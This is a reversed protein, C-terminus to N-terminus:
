RPAPPPPDVEENVGNARDLIVGPDSVSAATQALRRFPATIQVNFDFPVGRVSVNGIGPIAAIPGLDIPEGSNEGSFRISSVVEGALDGNLIIELEDYHFDRLADFAVRAMGVAGEGASGVYAITGGGPLARVVGDRVLAARRSLLLPFRGELRGTAALDPLNLSKILDAADVNNLVLEFQTEEAGLTITTPTLSLVGMAYAFEAREIAVRQDGLLQFQVRGDRAAVGPNVLGITVSQGPPTTLAFLDDFVIDGRVDEIIPITAAALSVGDLHVRGSAAVAQRDWIVEALASVDGRVNEVMGRLRETLDYPQLSADFSLTDAVIRAGGQGEAIDHQATFQALPRRSAEQLVAGEANVAGDRFHASVDALRIPSFLLREAESAPRNAVVLAEGAAVRVVFAGDEQDASWTGAIASVNGPLSPDSLAGREFGGAIRWDSGLLADATLAGLTLSVRRTESLDFAISPTNAEINLRMDQRAGTFRGRIASARLTVPEGARLRGAVRPTAITFGGALNGNRDASILAGGLACLPVSGDSFALGAIELSAFRIPLCTAKPSIAWGRGWNLALDLDIALDRVSGAGLPGSLLAPGDLELRGGGTAPLVLSFEVDEAAILAGSNRWDSISVAGEAEFPADPAWNISDFLLTAKPAGGGSIDLAVAGHLSLGPWQLLAADLDERLPEITVRVGNSARAVIPAVIRVQMRGEAANWQIPASVSFAAGAAAFTQRASAFGPGVPANAFNPLATRLRETAAPLLRAQALEIQANGSASNEDLAFVGAARPQRAAVGFGSLTGANLAWGGRGRAGDGEARAELLANVLATEGAGARPADARLQLRWGALALRDESAAAGGHAEVRVKNAAFGLASWHEARWQVDGDVRHLDTPVGGSLTLATDTFVAGAWEIRNAQAQLRFDLRAANSTVQLDAGGNHLGYGDGGQATTRPLEAALAFDRGIVGDARVSADLAGFPAELRLRGNEIAFDIAPLRPRRRSAGGSFRQLAGASVRGSADMRLRAHPSVLRLGTLRPSLGAWEWSAEIWEAGADPDDAAGFRVDTLAGSTFTLEAVEFDADVGRESLASSLFFEALSLRVLWLGGALLGSSVGLAAIATAWGM